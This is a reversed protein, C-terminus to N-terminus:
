STPTIVVECSNAEVGGATVSDTSDLVVNVVFLYVNLVSLVLHFMETLTSETGNQVVKYETYPNRVISLYKM